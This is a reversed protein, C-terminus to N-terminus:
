ECLDELEPEITFEVVAGKEITFDKDIRIGTGGSLKVNKNTKVTADDIGLIGKTKYSKVLDGSITNNSNEPLIYIYRTKEIPPNPPNTRRGGENGEFINIAYYNGAKLDYSQEIQKKSIYDPECSSFIGIDLEDNNSYCQKWREDPWYVRKRIHDEDLAELNYGNVEWVSLDVWEQYFYKRRCFIFGTCKSIRDFRTPFLYLIDKIDNVFPYPHLYFAKNECVTVIQKNIKLDEIKSRYAVNDISFNLEPLCAHSYFRVSPINEVPCNPGDDGMIEGIETDLSNNFCDCHYSKYEDDYSKKTPRYDCTPDYAYQNGISFKTDKDVGKAIAERFKADINWITSLKVAYIKGGGINLDCETVKERGKILGIVQKHKNFVPGGSSGYTLGGSTFDYLRYYDTESYRDYDQDDWYIKCISKYRTVKKSKGLPHHFIYKITKDYYDPEQNTWPAYNVDLGWRCLKKGGNIEILCYDYTHDYNGDAIIKDNLSGSVRIGKKGFGFPEKDNCEKTEHSFYYAWDERMVADNHPSTLVLPREANSETNLLVGTFNGRTFKGESDVTTGWIRIVSKSIKECKKDCAVNQHCDGLDDSSASKLKKKLDRFIYVFYDLEMNGQFETNNPEYYEIFIEEGPINWTSIKNYQLQEYDKKIPGQYTTKKADYIYFEAGDPMNCKKFEFSMGYADEAQVRLVWLNGENSPLEIKTAMDKMDKKIFVLLGFDDLPPNERYKNITQREEEPYIDTIPINDFNIIDQYMTRYGFPLDEPEDAKGNWTFTFAIALLFVINKM